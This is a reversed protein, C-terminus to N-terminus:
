TFSILLYGFQKVLGAFFKVTIRSDTQRDIFEALDTVTTQPCFCGCWVRGFVMTIFLFGFVLILVALLFLYFEEIRISAGFFHLTRSAADLRLLSEGGVRMFPIGLLLITSLWQVLKRKPAIKPLAM